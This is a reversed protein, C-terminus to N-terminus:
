LESFLNIFAQKNKTKLLNILINRDILIINLNKALEIAQNSFYSNTVVVAYSYNFYNKATFIEQIAKSGVKHNFYLKTQIAISSTKVHAIIDVGKDGSKKTLQNKINISTLFASIFLEFDYGSLADIDEITANHILKNLYNFKLKKFLYIILIIAIIIAIVIFFFLLFNKM